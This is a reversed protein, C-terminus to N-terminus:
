EGTWYMPIEYMPAQNYDQYLFGPAHATVYFTTNQFYNSLLLKKQLAYYAIGNYEQAEIFDPAGEAHAFENIIHSFSLSLASEDGLYEHHHSEPKFSVVRVGSEVKIKTYKVSWDPIFITVQHGKASLMQGTHFCYTSIGGGSIPPYETTLIWFTM